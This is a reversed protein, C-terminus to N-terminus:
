ATKSLLVSHNFSDYQAIHGDPHKYRDDGVEKWGSKKLIGRPKAASTKTRHLDYTTHIRGSSM